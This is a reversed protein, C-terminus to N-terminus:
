RYRKAKVKSLTTGTDTLVEAYDTKYIFISQLEGVVNDDPILVVAVPDGSVNDSRVTTAIQEPCVEEQEYEDSYVAPLLHLVTEFPKGKDEDRLGKKAQEIATQYAESDAYAITAQKVQSLVLVSGLKLKIIM